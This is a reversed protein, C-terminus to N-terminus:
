VPVMSSAPAFVSFSAPHTRPPSIQLVDFSVREFQPTEALRGPGRSPPRPVCIKSEYGFDDHGPGRDPVGPWVPLTEAPQDPGRSLAPSPNRIKRLCIGCEHGPWPAPVWPWAPLTEALREPGRSPPRPVCIKSEYGFDEHGPWPAPVWPWAVPAQTQRYKQRM